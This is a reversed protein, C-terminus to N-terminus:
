LISFDCNDPDYRLRSNINFSDIVAIEEPSLKFDFITVNERQRVHNLSRVVPIVGNQIHWRLVVQASTKGYKQAIAKLKPLRMLRDDFRAIPTYAEVLINKSKCYELLPKQSFLPHVEIQNLVPHIGTELIKEIHHMHCNSVGLSKAYGERYLKDMEEWTDLYVSTVPWHLMLVNVSDVGYNKLTTFFEERVRGTIQARNSIRATIFFQERAIGCKRIAQGICRGDGYAASFDLLRFGARLGSIIQKVFRAEAIPQLVFRNIEKGLRPNIRTLYTSTNLVGPGFGIQPIEIGNNGIFKEM